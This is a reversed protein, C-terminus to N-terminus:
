AVVANALATPSKRKKRKRKRKKREQKKKHKIIKWMINEKNRLDKYKRKNSNNSKHVISKM